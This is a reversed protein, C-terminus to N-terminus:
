PLSVSFRFVVDSSGDAVPEVVSLRIAEPAVDLAMFGAHEHAFVTDPGSAVPTIKARSGAGSVLVYDVIDSRLVQLSHEHGAAYLLPGRGAGDLFAAALADRMERNEDARLDQDPPAARRSLPYLSGVGPLPVWLWRALATLPFLHARWDFFGGHPGHTALPHHAAVVVPLDTELAARLVEVVQAETGPTCGDTPRSWDHLWWQTDLAVVRVRPEVAPVDVLAPGPCGNAPLFRARGRLFAEQARLATLGDPGGDAWDHNGPIFIAEAPTDEVVQVQRELRRQADDRRAETLGEPYANDGLFVVLTRDPMDDVWGRLAALTM